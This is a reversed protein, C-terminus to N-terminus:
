HFRTGDAVNCEFVMATDKLRDAATTHWALFFPLFPPLCFFSLRSPSRAFFGTTCGHCVVSIIM